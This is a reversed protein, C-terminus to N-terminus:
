EGAELMDLQVLPAPREVFFDPQRYAERIRACAIDFYGPDIEIGIFKRGLKVCAVGTTGSGMFPDIITGAPMKEILREMLATPKTTEHGFNDHINPCRIVDNDLQKINYFLIPEWNNFGRLKGNRQTSAVRVWAGTWDAPPYDRMGVVGSFCATPIGDVLHLWRPISQDWPYKKMGYPPDTAVADVKGLTPMIELCDGLYLTCDGIVERKM